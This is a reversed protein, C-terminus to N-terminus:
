PMSWPAVRTLGRSLVVSVLVVVGTLCLSELVSASEGIALKACYVLIPNLVFIGFSNRGLMQLFRPIQMRALYPLALGIATAGVVISLRTYPLNVRSEIAPILPWGIAAVLAGGGVLALAAAGGVAPKGAQHSRGLSAGLAFYFFWHWIGIRSLGLITAPISEGLISAPRLGDPSIFLVGAAAVLAAMAVGRKEWPRASLGFMAPLACVAYIQIMIVFYYQGPYGGEGFRGVIWKWSPSDPAVGVVVYAAWYFLAWVLHLRLFRVLNARMKEGSAGVLGALFGSVIVFVPVALRAV